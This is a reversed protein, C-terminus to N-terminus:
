RWERGQESEMYNVTLWSSNTCDFSRIYVQSNSLPALLWKPDKDTFSAQFQCITSANQTRKLEYKHHVNVVAKKSIFSNIDDGFTRPFAHPLIDEFDASCNTKRPGKKRSCHGNYDNPFLTEHWKWCEKIFYLFNKKKSVSREHWNSRSNLRADLLMDVNPVYPLRKDDLVIAFVIHNSIPHSM